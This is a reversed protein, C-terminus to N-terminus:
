VVAYATRWGEDANTHSPQMTDMCSDSEPKGLQFRDLSYSRQIKFSKAITRFQEDDFLKSESPDSKLSCREKGCRSGVM